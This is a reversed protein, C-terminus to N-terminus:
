PVFPTLVFSAQQGDHVGAGVIQGRNNIASVSTLTWGSASVPDVVSQLAFVAGNRWVVPRSPGVNWTGPVVSASWGIIDGFNNIAIATGYNDGAPLPLDAVSHAADNNWRVPRSGFPPHSEGVAEGLDNVGWAISSWDDPYPQLLSLTHKADNAWFAGMQGFLSSQVWGVVQVAENAATASECRVRGDGGPYPALETRRFSGPKTPNESWIAAVWSNCTGFGKLANGAILGNSTIRIAYANAATPDIDIAAGNRYLIARPRGNGADGAGVAVGGANESQAYSYSGLPLRGLTTATGSTWTTATAGCQGTVDATDNIGSVACDAGAVESIRYAPQAAAATTMFLAAILALPTKM